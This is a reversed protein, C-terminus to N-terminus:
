LGLLHNLQNVLGNLAVGRDLLGAVGCLLNGLLNGAGPVATINLNVQNLTVVLGLLNLNLPGLQLSLISCAATAAAGSVTTTVTQSVPTVVGTLSTLTGTVLGTVSLVGNQNSFSTPTFTGVFTGVGPIVQNIASSATARATSAASAASSIAPAAPAANAPLATVGVLGACIVAVLAPAYLKNRM